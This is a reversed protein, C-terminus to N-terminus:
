RLVRMLAEMLTTIILLILGYDGRNFIILLAGGLALIGMIINAPDYFTGRKDVNRIDMKEEKKNM